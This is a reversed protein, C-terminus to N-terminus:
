RRLRAHAGDHDVTAITPAESPAVPATPAGSGTAATRQLVPGLDTAGGLLETHNGADLASDSMARHGGVLITGHTVCAASRM